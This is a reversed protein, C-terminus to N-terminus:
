GYADWKIALYDIMALRTNDDPWGGDLVVFECMIGGFDNGYGVSGGIFLGQFPKNGTLPPTTGNWLNRGGKLLSNTKDYGGWMVHFKDAAGEPFSSTTAVNKSLWANSGGELRASFSGASVSREDFIQMSASGLVPKFVALWIGDFDTTLVVQSGTRIAGNNTNFSMCDLGNQSVKQPALNIIDLDWGSASGKSQWEVLNSGSWVMTSEDFHIDADDFPYPPPGGGAVEVTPFGPRRSGMSPNTRPYFRKSRM